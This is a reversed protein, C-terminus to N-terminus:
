MMTLTHYRVVIVLMCVGRRICKWKIDSKALNVPLILLISECENKVYGYILILIHKFYCNEDILLLPHLLININRKM